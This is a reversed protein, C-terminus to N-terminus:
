HSEDSILDYFPMLSSFAELVLDSFESVRLDDDDVRWAKLIDMEKRKEFEKAWTEESREIPQPKGSSVDPIRGCPLVGAEGAKMLASEVEGKRNSLGSVASKMRDENKLYLGVRVFGWRLAVFLQVDNHRTRGEPVVAGWFWKAVNGHPNPRALESTFTRGTSASLATACESLLSSLQPKIDEKWIDASVEDWSQKSWQEGRLYKQLGLADDTFGTFTETM